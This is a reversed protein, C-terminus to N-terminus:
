GELLIRELTEIVIDKCFNNNYYNMANLEMQKVDLIDDNLFRKINDVLDNVSEASGCYGCNSSRILNNTEGNIAGIIPKGAAMYSQVKGPLTMSIVPDKKLTILMADSM